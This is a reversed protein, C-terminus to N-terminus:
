TAWYSPYGFPTITCPSTIKDQSKGNPVGAYAVYGNFAMKPGGAGFTLLFAMQTKLKSAVLLAQQGANSLDWIQTLEIKIPNSAGPVNLKQDSHILTTDIMEFDGGTINIDTASTISNGFTILQATGGTTQGYLTTDIGAGGSVFEFEYSNTASAIIRQVTNNIQTMGNTNVLIYNGNSFGHAADTVVGPNANTIASITSNAGLASQMAIAVNSMKFVNSM